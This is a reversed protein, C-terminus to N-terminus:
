PHLEAEIKDLMKVLKTRLEEDPHHATAQDCAKKADALEGVMYQAVCLNFYYKPLPDASIADRFKWASVQTQEV